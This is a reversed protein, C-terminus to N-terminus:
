KGSTNPQELGLLAQSTKSELANAGMSKASEAFSSAKRGIHLGKKVGTLVAGGSRRPPPLKPHENPAGRGYGAVMDLQEAQSRPLLWVSMDIKAQVGEHNPHYCNYWQRPVEQMTKMRQVNGHLTALQLVCEALAENPGTSRRDWIQVLLKTKRTPLGLEFLYRWNFHAEEACSYHIDSEQPPKTEDEQVTVMVDAMGNAMAIAVSKDKTNLERVSWVVVRLETEMALPANLTKPKSALAQPPTLIELWMELKGQPALSAPTWLYRREVPKPEMEVWEQSFIRNELDIETAGILQAGKRDKDWVEIKLLPNGPVMTPLEFCRYFNPNLTNEQVNKQDDIVNQKKPGNRVILFPDALGDADRPELKIGRTIYLRAIYVSQEFLDRLELPPMAQAKIAVELVRVRAKFKGVERGASSATGGRLVLWEDFPPDEVIHELEADLPKNKLELATDGAPVLDFPVVSPTNPITRMQLGGHRGTGLKGRIRQTKIQQSTPTDFAVEAEPTFNCEDLNTPIHLKHHQYETDVEVEEEESSESLEDSIKFPPVRPKNNPVYEAEHIWECYPALPITLKGVCPDDRAAAARRDFVRVNIAGCFLIDYPMRTSITLTQLFNANQGNPKSSEKTSRVRDETSRDGCDIQVYPAQIPKNDYSLMERVGVCAVEIEVDKMKPTIDNLPVKTVEEIPILQFSCLIEGRIERKAAITGQAASGETTQRWLTVWEPAKPMNKEVKMLPVVCSGVLQDGGVQKEDDQDYIQLILKASMPVPQPLPLTIKVTEYWQPNCTPEKVRTLGAYGALTVVTYPNCLGDEDMAPLDRAQYIHARLEFRRMPPKTIRERASRPLEAVKGVDLRYELFGPVAAVEPYLPDRELTTWQQSHNFGYCESMKLRVYGLRAPKGKTSSNIYNVNIFVDPCQALDTPLTPRAEAFSEDWTAGGHEALTVNSTQHVPGVQLEVQLQTNDPVSAACLQSVQNLDFRVCYGEHPPDACPGISKVKPPLAASQEEVSMALLLRGKYCTDLSAHPYRERMAALDGVGGIGYLPVWRPELTGHRVIENLSFHCDSVLDDYGGHDYDSVKITIADNMVPVRVPLRVLENFVPSLSNNVVKTKVTAQGHLKVSVFADTSGHTDMNPLGEVRYIAVFLSYHTWRVLHPMLVLPNDDERAEIEEEPTHTPAPQTGGLVCVSVCLAGQLETVYEHSNSYLALWTYFYESLSQKRVQGLKLDYMGLVEMKAATNANLVRFQLAASHFEEFGMETKWEFYTGLEAQTTQRVVQTYKTSYGSVTATVVLDPLVGAMPKIDKVAIVHVQVRFPKPKPGAIEGSAAAKAAAQKKKAAAQQERVKDAM